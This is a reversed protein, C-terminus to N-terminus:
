RWVELKITPFKLRFMKEKLRFTPVKFGKVDVVVDTDGMHDPNCRLFRFDGCYEIKRHRKGTSDRFAEQLLFRPQRELDTIWGRSEALKLLQYVEAERKSDFRIGDVTREAVPSVGYKHRKQGDGLADLTPCTSGRRQYVSKLETLNWNRAM